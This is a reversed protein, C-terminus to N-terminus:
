IASTAHRKLDTNVKKNYKKCMQSIQTINEQM